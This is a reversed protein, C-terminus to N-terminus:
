ENRMHSFWNLGNKQTKWSALSFLALSSFISAYDNTRENTRHMLFSFMDYEFLWILSIALPTNMTFTFPSLSLSHILDRIFRAPSHTHLLTFSWFSLRIPKLVSARAYGCAYLSFHFVFCSFFFTSLVLAPPFRIFFVMLDRAIYQVFRIINRLFFLHVLASLRTRRWM